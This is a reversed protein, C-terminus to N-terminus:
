QQTHFSGLFCADLLSHVVKTVYQHDNTHVKILRLFRGISDSLTMYSLAGGELPFRLLMATSNRAGTKGIKSTASDLEARTFWKGETLDVIVGVSAGNRRLRGLLMPISWAHVDINRRGLISSYTQGTFIKATHFPTNRVNRSLRKMFFWSKPAQVPNQAAKEERTTSPSPRSWSNTTFNNSSSPSPSPSSSSAASM